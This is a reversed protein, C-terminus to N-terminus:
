PAAPAPRTASDEAGPARARRAAVLSELVLFGLAALALWKWLKQRGEKEEDALRRRAAPDSVASAEPAQAAEPAALKVGLDGLVLRPDFAAVRSESAALNVAYVRSPPETEPVGEGRLVYFGPLDTGTFTAATGDVRHEVGDPAKLIWSAPASAAPLPLPTGVRLSPMELTLGGQSLMSFLLPIFKTSLALQSERPEWGSTFVFLHGAGRRAALIAPSGGGGDFRALVQVPVPAPVAGVDEAAPLEIRRHKCFHLKSFDRVKSRAFPVLVPHEFELGTLLAYDKVTGETVKLPASLDLLRTLTSGTASEALLHIAVGGRGIFEALATAAAEPLEGRVVAAQRGEFGALSLSAADALTLEPELLPTPQLARRLYFLPSTTGQDSANVTDIYLVRLPTPQRPALYLVNDFTQADGGLELLRAGAPAGPSAAAVPASAPLPVTLTRSGGSPVRGSFAAEAHGRWKLSFEEGVTDRDSSVRVRPNTSPEKGPAGGEEEEMTTVFHPSLNGAKEPELMLPHVTVEEPWPFRALRERAAGEQFDSLVVIEHSAFASHGSGGAKELPSDLVRGSAEILVQGLDTDRWGPRWQGLRQSAERAREGPPLGSWEDFGIIPRLATDFAALSLEDAPKAREIWERAREVAQPWLRDRQMSASGDLLLLLRRGEGGADPLADSRLLPRAFLAALLLLALCRLALLLWREIESRRTLREPTKELFMLSSFVVQDKPPRRRLHLLIPIALALGGLLYLPFLFSM